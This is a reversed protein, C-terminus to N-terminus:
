FSLASLEPYWGAARETARRWRDRHAPRGSPDVVSKPSWTAAVEDLGSWTGVAVGALLGPAEDDARRVPEGM